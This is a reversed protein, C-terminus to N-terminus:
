GTYGLENFAAELAERSSMARRPAAAIATRSNGSIGTAAHRAAAARQAPSQAAARGNSQPQQGSFLAAVKAYAEPLGFDDAGDKELVMGVMQAFQPNEMLPHLLNGAADRAGVFSQSERQIWEVMQQEQAAHVAALGNQQTQAIQQLLQDRKALEQQIWARNQADPDVYGDVDPQPVEIGAQQAVWRAFEQPNAYFAQMYAAAQRAMGLEDLGQSAGYHALPSYMTRLQRGFAVEGQAEDWQSKLHQMRRTYDGEMARHRDLMWQQHELPVRAFLERDQPAWHQPAEIPTPPSAAPAPTPAVADEITGGSALADYQASFTDFESPAPAGADLSPDEGGEGGLIDDINM